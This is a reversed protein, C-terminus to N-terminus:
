NWVVLTVCFDRRRRSCRSIRQFSVRKVSVRDKKSVALRLSCFALEVDFHSDCSEALIRSLNAGRLIIARM